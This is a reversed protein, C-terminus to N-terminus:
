QAPSPANDFTSSGQAAYQGVINNGSILDGKSTISKICVSGTCAEAVVVVKDQETPESATAESIAQVMDQAEALLTQSLSSAENKEVPTLSQDSNVESQIMQAVQQPSSEPSTQTEGTNLDTLTVISTITDNDGGGDAPQQNPPMQFTNQPQALVPSFIIPNYQGGASIVLIIVILNVTFLYVDHCNIKMRVKTISPM